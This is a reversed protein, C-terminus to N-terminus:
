GPIQELEHLVLSSIGLAGADNTHEAQLIKVNRGSVSFAKSRIEAELPKLLFDGMNSVGGGIVVAEPNFLTVVNAIGLGLNKVLHNFAAVAAPNGQEYLQQLKEAPISFLDQLAKGSAAEYLSIDDSLMIHSLEGAAGDAGRYLEGNIFIGCGIATSISIYLFNRFTRGAGFAAEGAAAARADNEAFVFCGFRQELLKRIDIDIWDKLNPCEVSVGRSIDVPGPLAIGIGSLQAASMRRKELIRDVSSYINDLICSAGSDAETDIRFHELVSFEKEYEALMFAIKTGGVDIGIITQM